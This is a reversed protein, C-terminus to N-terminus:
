MAQGPVPKRTPVQSGTPPSTPGNSGNSRATMPRQETPSASRASSPTLPRPQMAGPPGMPGRPPGHPPPPGRQQGNPTGPRWGGPPPPGQPRPKVPLKSLCTRPAVGQKSRDMTICLAWGDDYEHLLRVLAGSILELEDDMSPKFDLQVRHVNNPQGPPPPGRAGGPPGHASRPTSPESDRHGHAAIAGAAAVAGAAAAAGNGSENSRRQEDFPNAPPSDARAQKESMVTADAFPDSGNNSPTREWASNRKENTNALGNNKNDGLMPLFQTVPRLSLRPATSATRASHETSTSSRKNAAAAAMGAGPAFAVPNMGGSMGGSLGGNAEARRAGVDAFSRHKENTADPNAPKKRRWCCFYVLGAACAIIAIIGFALGAKAGGTMGESSSDATAPTSTAASTAQIPTGGVYRGGTSTATAFTTQQKSSIPVITSTPASDDDDDDNAKTRTASATSAPGTYFNPGGGVAGTTRAPVTAEPDYEGTLTSYVAPGDFTQPLTVYVVSAGGGDSGQEDDFGDPVHMRIRDDHLDRKRIMLQERADEGRFVRGHTHRQHLGM